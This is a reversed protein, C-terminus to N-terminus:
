SSATLSSDDDKVVTRSVPCEYFTFGKYGAALFEEPLEGPVLPVDHVGCVPPNSGRKRFCPETM